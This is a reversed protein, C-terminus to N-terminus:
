RTSGMQPPAPSTRAPAKQLPSIGATDGIPVMQKAERLFRKRHFEKTIGARLLDADTMAQVGALTLGGGVLLEESYRSHKAGVLFEQATHAVEGDHMRFALPGPQPEAATRAAAGGDILPPPTPPVGEEAGASM